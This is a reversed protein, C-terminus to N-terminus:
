RGVTIVTGDHSGHGDEGTVGAGVWELLTTDRETLGNLDAAGHGLGPRGCVIANKVALHQRAIVGEDPVVM